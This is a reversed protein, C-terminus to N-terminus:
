AAIAMPRVPGYRARIFSGPSSCSPRTPSARACSPSIAPAQPEFRASILVAGARTTALDGTFKFTDLFTLDNPGALDIPAINTIRRALDAGARPEAGTMAAIEGVTMSSEASFFQPGADSGDDM